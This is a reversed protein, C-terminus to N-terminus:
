PPFDNRGDLATKAVKAIVVPDVLYLDTEDVYVRRAGSMPGEIGPALSEVAGTALDVRGVGDGRMTQNNSDSGVVSVIAFYAFGGDLAVDICSFHQTNLLVTPTGGAARKTIQCGAPPTGTNTYTVSTAWVVTADDAAIGVPSNISSMMGIDGIKTTVGAKTTEEVASTALGTSGTPQDFYYVSGTNVALCRNTATCALIPAIHVANAPSAQISGPNAGGNQTPGCCPYSPDNPTSQGQAPAAALYLADAAQILAAAGFSPGSSQPFTIVTPGPDIQIANSPTTIAYAWVAGSGTAAIKPESNNSAPGASGIMTTGGTKAFRFVPQPLGQSISGGGMCSQPKYPVTVAYGADSGLAVDGIYYSTCNSNDTMSPAIAFVITADTPASPIPGAGFCAAVMAAAAISAIRITRKM